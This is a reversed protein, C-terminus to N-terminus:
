NRSLVRAPGTEVNLELIILFTNIVTCHRVYIGKRDAVFRPTVDRLFPPFIGVSRLRFSAASPFPRAILRRRLRRRLSRTRERAPPRFVPGGM